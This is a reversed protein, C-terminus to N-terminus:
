SDVGPAILYLEPAGGPDAVWLWRSETINPVGRRRMETALMGCIEAVSFKVRRDAMLPSETLFAIAEGDLSTGVDRDSAM